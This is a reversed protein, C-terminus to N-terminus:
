SKILSDLEKASLAPVGLKQAWLVLGQDATALHAGLEKALLVLDVDEKSDIVGERLAIRYEERFSKILEEESGGQLGKRTFKEGVRLGKNMRQRMEEVFEYFFLAPISGQYSSPPRKEVLLSFEQPPEREMFKIMEAYVSPPMYWSHPYKRARKVFEVFAEMPNPGFFCRADPNVFISTDLVVKLVQNMASITLCFPALPM